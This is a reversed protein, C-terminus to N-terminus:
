VVLVVILVLVQGGLVLVLVLVEQVRVGLSLSLSLPKFFTRLSDKLVLVLVLILMGPDSDVDAGQFTRCQLVSSRWRNKILIMDIMNRSKGDLSRWTWKRCDKQQFITNCIM